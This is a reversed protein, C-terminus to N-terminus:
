DSEQMCTTLQLHVSVELGQPTTLRSADVYEVVMPMDCGPHSKFPKAGNLAELAAKAESYSSFAVIGCGKSTKATAWRRYLNLDKVEGYQRLLTLLDDYPAPPPVRAFFIATQNIV